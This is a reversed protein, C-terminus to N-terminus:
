GDTEELTVSELVLGEGRVVNVRAENCRPCQFRFNAVAFECSCSSCRAELPVVRLELLAGSIPSDDVLEDFASRFLDAEVGCFEGVSVRVALVREAAQEAQLQQVQKLLARVLTREHM